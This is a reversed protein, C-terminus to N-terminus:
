KQLERIYTNESEGGNPKSPAESSGAGAESNTKEPAVPVATGAESKGKKKRANKSEGTVLTQLKNVVESAM